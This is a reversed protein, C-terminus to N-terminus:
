RVRNKGAVLIAHEVLERDPLADDDHEAPRDHVQENSDHQERDDQAPDAGPHRRRRQGADVLADM